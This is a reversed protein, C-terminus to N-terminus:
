YSWFFLMEPVSQYDGIEESFFNSQAYEAAMDHEKGRM